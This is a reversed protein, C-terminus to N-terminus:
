PAGPLAGPLASAVRREQSPEVAQRPKCAGPGCRGVTSLAAVSAEDAPLEPWAASEGRGREARRSKGGGVGGSAGAGEREDGFSEGHRAKEEQGVFCPSM